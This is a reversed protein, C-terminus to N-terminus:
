AATRIPGEKKAKRNDFVTSLDQELNERMRKRHYRKLGNLQLAIAISAREGLSLPQETRATKSVFPIDVLAEGILKKEARSLRSKYRLITILGRLSLSKKIPELNRFKAIAEKQTDTLTKEELMKMTEKIANAPDKQFLVQGRPSSFRQYIDQLLLNLHVPEWSKTIRSIWQGAVDPQIPMDAEAALLFVQVVNQKVWVPIHKNKAANRIADFEEIRDTIGQDLREGSDEGGPPTIVKDKIGLLEPHANLIKLIAMGLEILSSSHTVDHDKDVRKKLQKVLTRLERHKRPIKAPRWHPITSRIKDVLHDLEIFEDEQSGVLPLEIPFLHLISLKNLDSQWRSLTLRIEYSFSLVPRAPKKNEVPTSTPNEARMEQSPSARSAEGNRASNQLAIASEVARIPPFGLTAKRASSLPEALAEEQFRGELNLERYPTPPATPYVAAALGGATAPDALLVPVLLFSVIRIFHKDM